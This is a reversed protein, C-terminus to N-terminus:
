RGWRHVGEFGHCELSVSHLYGLEKDQWRLVPEGRKGCGLVESLLRMKGDIRVFDDDVSYLDPITIELPVMVGNGDYEKSAGVTVYQVVKEDDKAFPEYIKYISIKKM